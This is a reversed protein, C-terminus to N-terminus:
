NLLLDLFTGFGRNREVDQLDSMGAAIAVSHNQYGIASGVIRQVVTSRQFGYEFPHRKQAEVASASGLDYRSEYSSNERAWVEREFGGTPQDAFSPLRPGM